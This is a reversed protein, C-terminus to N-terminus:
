KYFERWELDGRAIGQILLEATGLNSAYPVNYRDCARFIRHYSRHATNPEDPDILFILADISNQEIMVSFDNLANIEGTKLKQIKLNRFNEILRGTGETAYLDHKRLIGSYAVCLNKILQKKSNDGILGINM